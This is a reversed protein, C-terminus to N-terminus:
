FFLNQQSWQAQELYIVLRMPKLRNVGCDWSPGVCKIMSPVGVGHDPMSYGSQYQLGAFLIHGDLWFENRWECAVPSVQGSQNALSTRSNPKWGESAFCSSDTCNSRSFSWWWNGFHDFDVLKISHTHQGNCHSYAFFEIMIFQNGCKNLRDSPLPAFTPPSCTQNLWPQSAHEAIISELGPGSSNISWVVSHKAGIAKEHLDSVYIFWCFKWWFWLIFYHMRYRCRTLM